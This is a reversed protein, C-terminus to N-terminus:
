GVDQVANVIIDFTLDRGAFSADNEAGELPWEWYITFTRSMNNGYAITGAIEYSSLRISNTKNSNSYFIMSTPVNQLDDFSITYDIGVQSGTGDLVIDFSGSSGPAIKGNMLKTAHDLLNVNFESKEGNVKFRWKAAISSSTAVSSQVLMAYTVVGIGVLLAFLISILIVKKKNM